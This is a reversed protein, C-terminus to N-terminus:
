GEVRLRVRSRVSSGFGLMEVKWGKLLQEVRVRVSISIM